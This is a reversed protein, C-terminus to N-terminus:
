TSDDPRAAAPAPEPDPAHLMERHGSLGNLRSQRNDPMDVELMQKKKDRMIEMEFKEGAQYSGLIRMAHSVSTPERGDIRQIVDGDELKFGENDPARVVLLGKDTGFYSGLRETLSVLEMDGFGSGASVWMWRQMDGRPALPAVPITFDFNTGADGFSFVHGSMVQPSLEVEGSKGNRLYEVQLVDGEEVGSMFELLKKNALGSHDAQLPEGNVATITDGSRLGAEDAAGGPSVGIVSVGAVKGKEDSDITIGLKPKGDFKYRREIEAVRPLQRSSLEAIQQAAEALRQEAERMRREVEVQEQRIEVQRVEVEHERAERESETQQAFAMSAAFVMPVMLLFIRSSTM